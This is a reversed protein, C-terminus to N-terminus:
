VLDWTTTRALIFSDPTILTLLGFRIEVFVDPCCAKAMCM